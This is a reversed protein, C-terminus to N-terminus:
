LTMICNIIERLLMLFILCFALKVVTSWRVWKKYEYYKREFFVNIITKEVTNSDYLEIYEVKKIVMYSKNKLIKLIKNSVIENIMKLDDNNFLGKKNEKIYKYFYFSIDENVNFYKVNEKKKSEICKIINGIINSLINNSLNEIDNYSINSMTRM